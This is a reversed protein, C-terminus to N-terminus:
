EWKWESEAEEAPAADEGFSEDNVPAPKTEPKKTEAKKPKEPTKVDEQTPAAATESFNEEPIDEAVGGSQILMVKARKQFEVAFLTPNPFLPAGGKDKANPNLAALTQMVHARTAEQEKTIKQLYEDLSEVKNDELFKEVLATEEESFSKNWAFTEPFGTEFVTKPIKGSWPNETDAECSYKTGHRPDKGKEIRKTIFIDYLMIPGHMLAPVQKGGVVLVKQPHVKHQLDRVANKIAMGYEALRIELVDDERCLVLYRFGVGGRFPRDMEQLNYGLSTKIELDVADAIQIESPVVFDKGDRPMTIPMRMEKPKGEEDKGLIPVYATMTAVPGALIRRVVVGYKGEKDVQTAEWKSPRDIKDYEISTRFTFGEDNAITPDFVKGFIQSM